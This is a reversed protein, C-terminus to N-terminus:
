GLADGERARLSAGVSIEDQMGDDMGLETGDIFGLASDDISGDM